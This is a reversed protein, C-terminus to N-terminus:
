MLSHIPKQMWVMLTREEKRAEASQGMDELKQTHGGPRKM